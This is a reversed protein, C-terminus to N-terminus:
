SAAWRAVAGRLDDGGGGAGAGAAAAAAPHPLRAGAHGGDRAAGRGAARLDLAAGRRDPGRGGGARRHRHLPRRAEAHPEQGRDGRPVARDRARARRRDPRAAPAGPDAGRQLEPVPLRLAVQAAPHHEQGPLARRQRVRAHLRLRPQRGVPPGHDRLAAGAPAHRAHVRGAGPRPGRQGAAAARQAPRGAAGVAPAGGARGARGRAAKADRRRLFEDTIQSAATNVFTGPGYVVKAPKLERIERVGAAPGRAGGAPVNGSLCGELRILRGLDATLVTRQLDGKVLM